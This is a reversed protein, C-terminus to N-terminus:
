CTSGTGTLTSRPTIAIFFYEVIKLNIINTLILTIQPFLISFDFDKNVETTIYQGEVSGDILLHVQIFLRFFLPIM